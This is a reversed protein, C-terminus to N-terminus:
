NAIDLRRTAPADPATLDAVLWQHAPRALFDAADGDAKRLSADGGSVDNCPGNPSAYM